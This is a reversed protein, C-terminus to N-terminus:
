TGPSFNIINIQYLRNNTNKEDLNITVVLEINWQLKKKKLNKSM